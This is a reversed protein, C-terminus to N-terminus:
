YPSCMDRRSGDVVGILNFPFNAGYIVSVYTFSSTAHFVITFTGSEFENRSLLSARRATPLEALRESSAGRM